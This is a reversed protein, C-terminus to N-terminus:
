LADDIRGGQQFIEVSRSALEPEIGHKVLATALSDFPDDMLGADELRVPQVFPTLANRVGRITPEVGARAIRRFGRTDYNIGFLPRSASGEESPREQTLLVVYADWLKPGVNAAEIRESVTREVIPEAILLDSITPTAALAIIFYRNEALLIGAAAEGISEHAFGETSLVERAIAALDPDARFTPEAMM